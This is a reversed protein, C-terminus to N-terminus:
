GKGDAGEPSWFVRAWILGKDTRRGRWVIVSLLQALKHMHLAFRPPPPPNSITQTPKVHLVKPRHMLLLTVFEKKLKFKFVNINSLVNTIMFSM